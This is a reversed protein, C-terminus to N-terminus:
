QDQRRATCFDRCNSRLLLRRRQTAHHIKTAKKEANMCDAPAGQDGDCYQLVNQVFYFLLEEASTSVLWCIGGAEHWRWFWCIVM